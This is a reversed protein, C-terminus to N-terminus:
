KGESQPAAPLPMYHTPNALGLGDAVESGNGRSIWGAVGAHDFWVATGWIWGFSIDRRGVIIPTGDKPAESIPRWGGAQLPQTSLAARMADRHEFRYRGTMEEWCPSTNPYFERMTEHHARAVREVQDETFLGQDAVESPPPTPSDNQGKTKIAAVGETAVDAPRWIHGCRQCLHSRHPPNAWGETGDEFGDTRYAEPADIHQKGYAPCFLVMPIPDGSGGAGVDLLAHLSRVQVKDADMSLRVNLNGHAEVLRELDAISPKPEVDMWGGAETDLDPDTEVHRRLWAQDILMKMPPKAGVDLFGSSLLSEPSYM